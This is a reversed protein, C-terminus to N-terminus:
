NSPITERVAFIDRQINTGQKCVTSSLDLKQYFPTLLLLVDTDNWIVSVNDVEHDNVKQYAQQVM